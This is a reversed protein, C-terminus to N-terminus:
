KPVENLIETRYTTRSTKIALVVELTYSHGIRMWINENHKGPVQLIYLLTKGPPKRILKIPRFLKRHTYSHCFRVM